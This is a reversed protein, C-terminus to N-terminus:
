FFILLLVAFIIFNVKVANPNEAPLKFLKNAKDKDDEIM